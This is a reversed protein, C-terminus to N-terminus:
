RSIGTIKLEFYDVDMTKSAAASNIIFLIPSTFTTPINTSQSCVQVGNIFFAVGTSSRVYTFNAFSTGVATSSDTRTQVAAARTICFWNTDADLKEFYIGNDPPNASVNAYAGIRITTNTDNHNPRVIFTLATPLAPDILNNAYWNIRALTGSVATTSLNYFGLRNTISAAATVSGTLNWGLTGLSGSAAIGTLFDDQLFISNQYPYLNSQRTQIDSGWVQCTVILSILLVMISQIKFTHM